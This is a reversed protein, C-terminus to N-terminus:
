LMRELVNDRRVVHHWLAAVVHLGIVWYFATGIAAHIDELRHGFDRDVALPSPLAVSTFPILVQKGEASATLFGLVPMAIFFAYLALHVLRSLAASFRGLPPVVPPTGGRRRLELRWWVLVFVGIGSWYHGQMMANRATSGRPFGGHLEVLLYAAIVLLAMGWHMRRLGPIYNPRTIVDVREM